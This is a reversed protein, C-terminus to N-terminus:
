GYIRRKLEEIRRKNKLYNLHEIIDEILKYSAFILICSLIFCLIWIAILAYRILIIM